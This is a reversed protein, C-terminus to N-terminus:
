RGLAQAKKRLREGTKDVDIVFREHDCDGVQELDDYVKAHFRLRRRDVEVLEIEARVTMGELTPAMHRINVVVGVTHQGTGLRSAVLEHSHREVFLVMAPTSFVWPGGRSTCSERTVTMSYSARLGPQLVDMAPAEATRICPKAPSRCRRWWCAAPM